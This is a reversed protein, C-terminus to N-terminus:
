ALGDGPPPDTEFRDGVEPRRGRLFEAAALRRGGPRQLMTLLLSGSGCAVRLGSDGVELIQGPRDFHDPPDPPAGPRGTTADAAPGHAADSAVGRWCLIPEGALRSRAGPFPDFARLRREIATAPARWDITAEAKGIKAAYTM